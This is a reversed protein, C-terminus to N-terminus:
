FDVEKLVYLMTDGSYNTPYIGVERYNAMFMVAFDPITKKVPMTMVTPLSSM